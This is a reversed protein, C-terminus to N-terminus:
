STPYPVTPPTFDETYRCDQTIRVGAIWGDYYQPFAGSDNRGIHLAVAPAISTANTHDSVKTGNNWFSVTTGSRTVARHGFADTALTTANSSINTGNITFLLQDTDIYGFSWGVNASWAAVIRRVTKDDPRDWAEITFDGALDWNAHDAATVSDGNGDLLLSSTLGTPAAATDWQANGAATLTHGSDSADVFTTDGDTGNEQVALLVVSAWFPDTVAGSARRGIGLM